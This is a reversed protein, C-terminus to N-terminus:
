LQDTRTGMALKSVSLAFAFSRFPHLHQDFNAPCRSLTGTLSAVNTHPSTVLARTSPISFSICCGSIGPFQLQPRISFM